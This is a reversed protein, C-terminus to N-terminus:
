KQRRACGTDDDTTLGCNPSSRPIAPRRARSRNRRTSGAKGSQPRDGSSGDATQRETVSALKTRFALIATAQRRERPASGRPPPLPAQPAATRERRATGARHRRHRRRAIQSLRRRPQRSLPRAVEVATEVVGYPFEFSVGDDCRRARRRAATAAYRAPARGNTARPRRGSVSAGLAWGPTATVTSDVGARM